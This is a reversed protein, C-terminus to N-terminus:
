EGEEEWSVWEDPLKRRSYFRFLQARLTIRGDENLSAVADLKALTEDLRLTTIIRFDVYNEGALFENTPLYFTRKEDYARISDRDDEHVDALSRIMAVQVSPRDIAKDIECDHSIVMAHRRVGTANGFPDDLDVRSSAERVNAQHEKAPDLAAPPKQRLAFANKDLKVMYALSRVFVAPVEAFV